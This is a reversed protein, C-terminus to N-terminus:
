ILIISSDGQKFRGYYACDQEYKTLADCFLQINRMLRQNIKEAYTGESPPTFSSDHIKAQLNLWNRDMRQDWVIAVALAFIDMQAPTLTPFEGDTYLDISYTIGASPQVGFALFGTEPDYECDTYATLKTGDASYAAVSCLDYGIFGTDIETEQEMSQEDSTWETAAFQPESKGSLLYAYLEPPRNMKALASRVYDSKARYFLAPDTALDDRWRIDDIIVMAATLIDSWGTAM